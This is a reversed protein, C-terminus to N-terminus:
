NLNRSKLIIFIVQILRFYYQSGPYLFHLTVTNECYRVRYYNYPSQKQPLVGAIAM